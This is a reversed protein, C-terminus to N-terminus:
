EKWDGKDKGSKKGGSKGPATKGGQAPGPSQEAPAQQVRSQGPISGPLPARQKAPASAKPGSQVPRGEQLDNWRERASKVAPRKQVPAPTGKVRQEQQWRKSRAERRKRSNDVPGGARPGIEDQYYRGHGRGPPPTYGQVGWNGHKEWHKNKQWGRWNKEADHHPVREYEWPHGDWDHKEYNHRWGPPVDSYFKPPRPYTEWGGDYHRSRYWRDKWPRWWWGACFFIEVDVDPAVYIDTGPLVVVDPPAPFEILPPLDVNVNINVEATAARPQFIALLMLVGLGM